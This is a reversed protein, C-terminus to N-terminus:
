KNATVFYGHCCLEHTKTDKNSLLQMKNLLAVMHNMDDQNIPINGYKESLIPLRRLEQALNEYFNGNAQIVIDKFGIDKLVLDCFYKSFGSYYYYPSYHVVTAFPVTLILKGGPRLARHLEKLADKPHHVHELVEICMVADFSADAVPISAIDSVIDLGSQNWQGVQLGKGDGTGDYQGFDQSVYQLHNCHQKYRFQGAGADLIKHGKPIKSLQDSVWFIRNAEQDGGVAM